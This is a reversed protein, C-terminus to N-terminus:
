FLWDLLGTLLPGQNRINNNSSMVPTSFLQTAFAFFPFFTFSFHQIVAAQYANSLHDSDPKGAPYGAPYHTQLRIPIDLFQM